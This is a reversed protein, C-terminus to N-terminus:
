REPHNSERPLYIKYPTEFQLNWGNAEALQTVRPIVEPPLRTEHLVQRTTADYIIGGQFCILPTALGLAEAYQDTPSPGRGTAITVRVGQVQAQRVAEKVRPSLALDPGVLTNDLDFAVLRIM